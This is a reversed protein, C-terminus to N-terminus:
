RLVPPEGVFRFASGRLATRIMVLEAVNEATLLGVLRGESVVPAFLPLRAGTRSLIGDLPDAADVMQFDREMAESVPARNGGRTLAALIGQRMAVGVVRGEDVVPFDHQSGALMFDVARSLPDQPRLVFFHTLMADQARAGTLQSGVVVARAEAGAGTWVLVAILMLLPSGPGGVLSLLGVLGFVVAFGQGLVAAIRTAQVRDLWFSLLARLVRGGDMPFAPILNFVVLMGNVVLLRVATSDEFAESLGDGRFGGVLALWLMLGLALVVNVAPGALAVLLEQGPRDPMRELRAVGGIPLLTIDKTRIGFQRAALAHGFEHLLVCGFIACFFGVAEGAAALSRGDAWQMMGVLGLLLLFTAHVYVDVGLWRGIQFSWKM